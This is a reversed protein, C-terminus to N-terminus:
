RLREELTAGGPLVPDFGVPEYWLREMDLKAEAAALVARDFAVCASSRVEHAMQVVTTVAHGLDMALARVEGTLSAPDALVAEAGPLMTRLTSVDVGHAEGAAVLEKSLEVYHRLDYRERGHILHLRKRVFDIYAVALKLQERALHDAPDIAGAVTDNLSKIVSQLGVSIQDM